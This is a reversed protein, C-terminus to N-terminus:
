HRTTQAYYGTKTPPGSRINRKRIDEPTPFTAPTLKLDTLPRTAKNIEEATRHQPSFTVLYRSINEVWRNRLKIVVTSRLVSNVKHSGEAGASIKQRHEEEEHREGRLLVWDGPLIKETKWHLRSDYYKKYRSKELDPNKKTQHLAKQIWYKWPDRM